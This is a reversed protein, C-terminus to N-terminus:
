KEELESADPCYIGGNDLMEMPWKVETEPYRNVIEELSFFYGQTPMWGFYDKILGKFGFEGPQMGCKM